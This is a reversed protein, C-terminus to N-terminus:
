HTVDLAACLDETSGLLEPCASGPPLTPTPSVTVEQSIHYHNVWPSIWSWLSTSLSSGQSSWLITATLFYSKTVIKGIINFLNQSLALGTQPRAVFSSWCPHRPPPSPWSACSSSPAHGRARPSSPSSRWPLSLPASSSYGAGPSCCHHPPLHSKKNMSKSRMKRRNMNWAWRKLM